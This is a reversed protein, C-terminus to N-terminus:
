STGLQEIMVIAFILAGIIFSHKDRIAFFIPDDNMQGRFALLWMRMLWYGLMTGIVFVSPDSALVRNDALLGYLVFSLMSIATAITGFSLILPADDVSYGRGAMQIKEKRRMKVLETYRKTLSLSLFLSFVFTILWPSAPEDVIAAGAIVRITFLSALTIVDIIAKRKLIMSYLLTMSFYTLLIIGFELPLFAAIVASLVICTFMAMIGTHVNLSGKALPRNKKSHHQRDNQIDILDNFIYTGSALLGMAIFAPFLNLIDFITLKSIVLCPIMFILINKAWQHMRMTKLIPILPLRRPIITEIGQGNVSKIKAAGSPPSVGLGSHAKEWVAYDQTSNGIYTFGAPFTDELFNAKNHSTLNHAETSGFAKDVWSFHAAIKDILNASSGSCLIVEGGGAKHSKAINIVEENFPLANIKIEGGVLKVLEAKFKAKSTLALYFLLFIKFPYRLIALLILEHTLDSRILTGDVDIVLASSHKM